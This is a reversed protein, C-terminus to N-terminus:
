WVLDCRGDPSCSTDKGVRGRQNGRNRFRPREVFKLCFEWSTPPKLGRFLISTLNSWRGLYADHFDFNRLSERRKTLISGLIWQKRYYFDFIHLPDKLTGLNLSIVQMNFRCLMRDPQIGIQGGQLESFQRGTGSFGSVDPLPKCSPRPASFLNCLLPNDLPNFARLWAVFGWAFGAVWPLHQAVCGYSKVNWRRFCQPGINTCAFLLASIDSKWFFDLMRESLQYQDNNDVWIELWKLVHRDLNALIVLVFGESVKPPNALWWSGSGVHRIWTGTCGLRPLKVCM